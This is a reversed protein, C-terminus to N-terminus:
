TYLFGPGTRSTTRADTLPQEWTPTLITALLPPGQSGAQQGSLGGLRRPWARLARIVVTVLQLIHLSVGEMCCVCVTGGFGWQPCFAM